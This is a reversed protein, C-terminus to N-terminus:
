QRQWLVIGEKVQKFFVPEDQDLTLMQEPSKIILQLKESLNSTRAIKRINEPQTTIILIDYDSESTNSGAARSGFLIIKISLQVLEDVLPKVQMLNSVVRFHSTLPSEILKNFVMRGRSTRRVLGLDSLSRLAINVASKKVDVILEAIETDNLEDDPHQLLFDLVKLIPTSFLKSKLSNDNDM